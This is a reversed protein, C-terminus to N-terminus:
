ANIRATDFFGWEADNRVKKKGEEEEGEEMKRRTPRYTPIESDTDAYPLSGKAGVCVGLRLPPPPRPGQFASALEAGIFFACLVRM